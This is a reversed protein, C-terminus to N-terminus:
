FEKQLVELFDAISQQTNEAITIQTNLVKQADILFQKQYNKTWDAKKEEDVSAEIISDRTHYINQRQKNIVSDYDFLHKRTSFHRAEIEKQSRTIANTFQSQTLELNGLEEKSLLLSAVSKIREGGMKRMLTDDLAVFFV